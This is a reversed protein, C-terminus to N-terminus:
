QCGPNKHTDQTDTHTIPGKKCLLTAIGARSDMMGFIVPSCLAIDIM